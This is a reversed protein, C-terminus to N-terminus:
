EYVPKPTERPVIRTIVVRHQAIIDALDELVLAPIAPDLSPKDRSALMLKVQSDRAVRLAFDPSASDDMPVAVAGCLLCGWFTAVWEASNQGWLLVRDNTRIGRAKLANAFLMARSALKGYTWSSHRYGYPYVVARGSEFRKFDAFLSLLSSRSM